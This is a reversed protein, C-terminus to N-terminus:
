GRGLGAYALAHAAASFKRRAADDLRVDDLGMVDPDALFAETAAKLGPFRAPSVGAVRRWGIELSAVTFARLTKADPFLPEKSASEALVTRAVKEWVEAWVAREAPTAAALAEAVPRVKDLLAPSPTPLPSVVAAAQRSPSPIALSVLVLLVAAGVRVMSPNM